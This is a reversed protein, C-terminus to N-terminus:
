KMLVMRETKSFEGATLKYMYVGSGVANGANDKGDWVVEHYGAQKRDDVLRRVERGLLDYIALSVGSQTPIAFRITTAPNFPNPYNQELAYVAPMHEAVSTVAGVMIEDSFHETGDMDVQRLRYYLPGALPSEDVYEYDRPINTTGHGPQFSNPVELFIGASSSRRQVYFGYNNIESITRWRLRVANQTTVTGSFSGLQVPLAPNYSAAPDFVKFVVIEAFNWPTGFGSWPGGSARGIGMLGESGAPGYNNTFAIWLCARRHGWASSADEYIWGYVSREVPSPISNTSTVFAALNEAVGLFDQHNQIAPHAALRQWPTTGGSGTHTFLNNALLYDAHAQAVAIANVDVGELPLLGRAQRESNILWLARLSNSMGDWEAQSPMTMMPMQVQGTGLNLANENTRANNFATQIDTVTAYQAPSWVVDAPRDPYYDQGLGTLPLLLALMLITFLSCRRRAPSM